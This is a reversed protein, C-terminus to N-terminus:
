YHATYSGGAAARAKKREEEEAKKRADAQARAAAEKAAAAKAEAAADEQAKAKAASEEEAKAKSAAAEAEEKASTLKAYEEETFDAYENLVMDKGSELAFQEMELFNKYFQPFRSEDQQKNYEKCWEMYSSRVRAERALNDSEMMTGDESIGEMEDIALELDEVSDLGLQAALKQSFLILPSFPYETLV